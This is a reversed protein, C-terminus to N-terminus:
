VTIKPKFLNDVADVTSDKFFRNMTFILSMLILFQLSDPCTHSPSCLPKNQSLCCSPNFVSLRLSTFNLVLYDPVSFFIADIYKSLLNFTNRNYCGDNFPM